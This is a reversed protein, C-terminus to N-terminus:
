MWDIAITVTMCVPVAVDGVRTPEFEWQRIADIMAQNFTHLPPKITVERITWVRAIKGDSGILAEGIWWGSGVTGPPFTPYNPKADRIKRPQAIKGGVLVGKRGAIAASERECVGRKSLRTDVGSPTLQQGVIPLTLAFLAAIWAASRRWADARCHGDAGM